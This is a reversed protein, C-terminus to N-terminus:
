GITRSARLEAVEAALLDAYTRHALETPRDSPLFYSKRWVERTLEVGSEALAERFHPVANVFHFGHELALDRAASRTAGGDGFMLFLVPIDHEESLRALRKLARAVGELGAMYDRDSVRALLDEDAETSRVLSPPPPEEDSPAASFSTLLELLYLTSRSGTASPNALYRPPALDDYVFHIVILDPDFELARHELMAVQQATNFGPTAFNLVEYRQEESASANLLRELRDLYTQGQAVGTGFMHSDGLGVIRFTNPPKAPDVERGRMGHKNTHLLRGALTGRVNPRLEYILEEHPSPQVLGSRTLEGTQAQRSETSGREFLRGLEGAGVGQTGAYIRLGIEAAALGGLLLM